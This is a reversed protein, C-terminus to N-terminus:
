YEMSFFRRFNAATAAGIEEASGGRLGAIHGATLAVYAPENRKGRHPLPSLYPSDTEILMRELPVEKAADRINQAKPFSVNGAFSIMFGMTLAARAHELQGTFCHLIGGLGGPKWHREVLTLCDDWADTTEGSPRCHIIIPLKAERALVMQRIFVDRQVDRPSHDYWYDLGIEGWAIVRKHAALGSMQKYHEDRALRAEHPHIGVSAYLRPVKRHCPPQVPDFQEAINLACAVDDPGDGNGIMLLAEVGAQLARVLVEGRDAAFKEGDLHCHSDVFM